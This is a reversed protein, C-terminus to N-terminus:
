RLSCRQWGRPAASICIEVVPHLPMVSGKLDVTSSILSSHRACLMIHSLRPHDVLLLICHMTVCAALLLPQLAAPRVMDVSRFDSYDLTGKVRQMVADAAEQAMKGKKVRSALNSKM